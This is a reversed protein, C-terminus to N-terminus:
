GNVLEKIALTSVYHENYLQWKDPLMGNGKRVPELYTDLVGARSGLYDAQHVILAELTHPVKISGKDVSGHHAAICHAVEKVFDISVSESMERYVDTTLQMGYYMHGITNEEPRSIPQGIEDLDYTILKGSDHLTAAAYAVDPTLMEPYPFSQVLAKTIELVEATHVLLGGQFAHHVSKAAPAKLLKDKPLKGLCTMTFKFHQPNTYLHQDTITEWAKRLAEPSAKKIDYLKDLTEQPISEKPLIKWGGINVVINNYKTDRQDRFDDFRVIQGKRPVGDSPETVDWIVARFSADVTKVDMQWFPNKKGTRLEENVVLATITNM